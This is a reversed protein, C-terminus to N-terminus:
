MRTYNVNVAFNGALLFKKGWIGPILLPVALEAVMFQNHMLLLM